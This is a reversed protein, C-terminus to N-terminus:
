KGPAPGTRALLRITLNRVSFAILRKSGPPRLSPRDTDFKWVSDGPPVRVGPLTLDHPERPELMASALMRGGCDVTVRRADNARLRFSVDATVAFGHPNHLTIAAPGDSWRWYELFSKEPVGWHEDFRVDFARGTKGDARLEGPGSVVFSEHPSPQLPQMMQPAMLATLNGALLVPLWKWSRRPVLANFALVMPLLARTSQGPYGEWVNGGLFIMLFAYAAGVRWWLSDRRWRLAFFLWQVTLAVLMVVGWRGIHAPDPSRLETFTERWRQWYAVFPGAFNRSGADAGSGVWFKLVIMWALLPAAVLAGCGIARRWERRDGLARPAFIGGALVSTEKGLGAAGLVGAAWWPRGREALLVGLAILLLGPGDLLAYRVSFSMGFCFLVGLWRILNDLSDAPFWRWLLGALVLWCAVNELAFVNAVAAPKGGGVAYAIWSFLIRRARYPLNDMATRVEPDGLAPHMALQSYFQADFGFEPDEYHNMSRLEPLAHASFAKGFWLLATFGRGPLYYRACSGVFLVATAVYVPWFPFRRSFRLVFRWIAM